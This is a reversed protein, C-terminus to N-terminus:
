KTGQLTNKFIKLDKECVFRFKQTGKLFFFFFFLSSRAVRLRHDQRAVDGPAPRCSGRKSPISIARNTMTGAWDTDGYPLMRHGERQIQLLALAAPLISLFTPCTSGPTLITHISSCPGLGARMLAFFASLLPGKAGVSAKPCYVQALCSCLRFDPFVAVVESCSLLTRTCM